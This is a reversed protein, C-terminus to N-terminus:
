PSAFIEGGNYTAMWPLVQGVSVAYPIFHVSSDAYLFNAGGAHFSWFHFQDCQNTM